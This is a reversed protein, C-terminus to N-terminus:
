VLAPTRVLSTLPEVFIGCVPGQLRITSRARGIIFKVLDELVAKQDTTSRTSEM